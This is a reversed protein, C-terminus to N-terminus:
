DPTIELESGLPCEFSVSITLSSSFTFKANRGTTISVGGTPYEPNVSSGIRFINARLDYDKIEQNQIRVNNFYDIDSRFPTYGDENIGFIFNGEIFFDTDYGSVKIAN